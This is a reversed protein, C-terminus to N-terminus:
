LQAVYYFMNMIAQNKQMSLIISLLELFNLMLTM